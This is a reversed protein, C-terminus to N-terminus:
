TETVISKQTQYFSMKELKKVYGFLGQPTIKLIFNDNGVAVLENVAPTFDFDTTGCFTGLVYLSSDPSYLIQNGSNSCSSDGIAAGWFLIPNQAKINQVFTLLCILISFIKKM